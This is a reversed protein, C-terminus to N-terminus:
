GPIRPADPLPHGGLLCAGPGAPVSGPMEQNRDVTNVIWIHVSIIKGMTTRKKIKLKKLCVCSTSVKNEM